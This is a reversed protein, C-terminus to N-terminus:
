RIAIKENGDLGEKVILRNDVLEGITVKKPMLFGEDTVLFVYASGDEKQYVAKKDVSIVDKWIGKSIELELVHADTPDIIADTPEFIIFRGGEDNPKINTVIVDYEQSDDKATYIQGIQFDYDDDTSVAYENQGSAEALLRIGPEINGGVLYKSVFTIVGDESAVIRCSALRAYEEELYTKAIALDDKLKGIEVEYNAKKNAESEQKQEYIKDIDKQRMGTYIKDQTDVKALKEYHELLLAAQKYDAEYKIINKRIEDSKFTVLVQGKSVHDGVSVNIEEIEVDSIDISYYTQEMQLPRLNFKIVPELDGKTVDALTYETKQYTDKPIPLLEATEEAQSCGALTLLFICVIIVYKRM